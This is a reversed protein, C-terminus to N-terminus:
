RSLFGSFSFPSLQFTLMNLRVNLRAAKKANDPCQGSWGPGPSKLAGSDSRGQPSFREL